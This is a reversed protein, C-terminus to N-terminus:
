LKTQQQNNIPEKMAQKVQKIIALMGDVMEDDLVMGPSISNELVSLLGITVHNNRM